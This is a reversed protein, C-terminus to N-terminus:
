DTYRTGHKTMLLICIDLYHLILVIDHFHQVKPAIKVEFGM